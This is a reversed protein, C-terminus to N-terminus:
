PCRKLTGLVADGTKYRIHDGERSYTWTQGITIPTGSPHVSKKTTTKFENLSSSNISEVDVGGADDRWTISGASVEVSYNSGSKKANCAGSNDSGTWRSSRMEDLLNSPIMTFLQSLKSKKRAEPTNSQDTVKPETDKRAQESKALADTSATAGSEADQRATEAKAQNPSAASAKAELAQRAKESQALADAADSAKKEAAQQAIEARTQAASAVNASTEADRRAWDSRALADAADSAKKEAAQRAAESKTQAASAVGIATEADRLARESKALADTAAGAKDEAAQRATEAKALAASATSVAAEADRWGRESKALADEAKARGAEAATIAAQVRQKDAPDITAPNKAWLVVALLLAAVALLPMAPRFLSRWIWDIARIGHGPVTQRGYGGTVTTPVPESLAPAADKGIQLQKILREVDTDFTRFDVFEAHRRTLAKIDGPLEDKTPMQAADLLVPIVPIKRELAGRIEIRVFDEPNDLRRLGSKPDASNIWGPGILALLVECQQVWGELIEVFDDGPKISNVDMFVSDPPLAKVFANYISRAQYRSNERRYSIFVKAM